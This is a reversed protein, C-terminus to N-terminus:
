QIRSTRILYKGAFTHWSAKGTDLMAIFCAREQDDMVHVHRHYINIAEHDTYGHLVLATMIEARSSPYVIQHTM